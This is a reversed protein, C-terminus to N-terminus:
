KEFNFGLMVSFRSGTLGGLMDSDKGPVFAFHFPMNLNGIKKNFGVAVVFGVGAVSLNPGVAFEYNHISRIGMLSSISPLFLGKEMGGALLIWEILGVVQEGDAFRTEWQWGYQTIFNSEIEDAIEGPTIITFGIRPGALSSIKLNNQTDIGYELKSNKIIEKSSTLNNISSTQFAVQSHLNILTVFLFLSILTTKKMINKKFILIM